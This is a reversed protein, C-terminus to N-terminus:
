HSPLLRHMDPRLRLLWLSMMVMGACGLMPLELPAVVEALHSASSLLVAALWTVYALSAAAQMTLRLSLLLALGTVLLLPMMWSLTLNLVQGAGGAWVALSLVLALAVDYGLVVVLRAVALQFAPLCSLELELVRAGRGRFATVVGLYALLPGSARLVLGQDPILGTVVIASGIATILASVLWFGAGFISVQERAVELLLSLRHHRHERVAQRVPSWGPLNSALAAILRQTEAPQPVPAPWEPLRQLFLVLEATDEATEGQDSLLAPLREPSMGPRSSHDETM